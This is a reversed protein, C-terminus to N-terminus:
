TLEKCVNSLKETLIGRGYGLEIVKDGLLQNKLSNFDYQILWYDFDM